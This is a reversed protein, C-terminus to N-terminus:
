SGQVNFAVDPIELAEVFVCGVCLPGLTIRGFSKKSGNLEDQIEWIRSYFMCESFDPKNLTM